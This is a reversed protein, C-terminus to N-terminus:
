NFPTAGIDKRPVAVLLAIALTKEIPLQGGFTTWIEQPRILFIIVYALLGWFPKHMILLAAMLTALIGAFIPLPVLLSTAGLALGVVVIWFGRIAGITILAGPQEIRDAPM